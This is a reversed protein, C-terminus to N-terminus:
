PALEKGKLIDEVMIVSLYTNNVRRDWFDTIHGGYMIEGFIYRLDQWPIVPNDNLYTQLVDACITLDGLNFSYKRSWGQQGFRIRGVMVSHFFCLAFLCAKFENPRSCQELRSQDFASWGRFINSKLDAPAENGM